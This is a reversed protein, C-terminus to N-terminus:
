RSASSKAAKAKKGARKKKAARSASSTHGNAPPKARPRVDCADVDRERLIYIGGVMRAKLRDNKILYYVWERSCGMRRAAQTMTILDNM